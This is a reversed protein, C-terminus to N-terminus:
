RTPVWYGPIWVWQYGNWQWAPAIWAWHPHQPFVQPAPPPNNRQYQNLLYRGWAENQLQGLPPGGGLPSGYRASGAGMDSASAFPSGYSASGAEAGAAFLGLAVAALLAPVSWRKM